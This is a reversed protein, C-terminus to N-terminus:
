GKVEKSEIALQELKALSALAENLDYRMVQKGDCLQNLVWQVTMTHNKIESRRRIFEWTLVSHGSKRCINAHDLCYNRDCQECYYLAETQDIACHVRYAM